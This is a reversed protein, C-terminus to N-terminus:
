STEEGDLTRLVDRVVQGTPLSDLRGGGLARMAADTLDWEAALKRVREVAARTQDREARHLDARAAARQHAAIVQDREATLREVERHALGVMEWTPEPPCEADAWCEVSAQAADAHRSRLEAYTTPATYTHGTPTTKPWAHLATLREVEAVLGQARETAEPGTIRHGLQIGLAQGLEQLGATIEMAGAKWEALTEVEALLDRVLGPAAAILSLDEVSILVTARTEIEDDCSPCPDAYYADLVADPGHAVLSWSRGLEWPGPTTGDLAERARTVVDHAADPKATAPNITM